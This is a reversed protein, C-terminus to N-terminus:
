VHNWCWKSPSTGWSRTARQPRLGGEMPRGSYPDTNVTRFYSAWTSLARLM